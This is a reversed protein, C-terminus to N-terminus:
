FDLPSWIFKWLKKKCSYELMVKNYGPLHPVPLSSALLFPVFGGFLGAVPFFSRM